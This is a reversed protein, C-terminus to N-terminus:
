QSISITCSAVKDKEDFYGDSVYTAGANLQEFFIKGKKTENERKDEYIFDDVMESIPENKDLILGDIIMEMKKLTFICNTTNKDKRIEIETIGRRKMESIIDFANLPIIKDVEVSVNPKGDKKMIEELSYTEYYIIKDKNEHAREKCISFLKENTTDSPVLSFDRVIYQGDEEYFSMHLIVYNKAEAKMIGLLFDNQQKAFSKILKEQEEKHRSVIRNLVMEEEEGDPSMDFDSSVIPSGLLFDGIINSLSETSLKNM